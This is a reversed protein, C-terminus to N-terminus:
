QGLWDWCRDCHGTFRPKEHGCITCCLGLWTDILRRM